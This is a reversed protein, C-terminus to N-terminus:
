TFKLGGHTSDFGTTNDLVHSNSHGFGMARPDLIDDPGVSGRQRNRIQGSRSGLTPNNAALRFYDSGHAAPQKRKFLRAGAVRQRDFLEQGKFIASAHGTEASTIQAFASAQSPLMIFAVSVGLAFTLGRIEWLSTSLGADALAGCTVALGVFGSALLRRPGVRPFLRAVIQTTIGIAIAEPFTSLGSNIASLGRGEQLYL